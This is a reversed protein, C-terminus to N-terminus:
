ARPHADRYVRHLRERSTHTYIRTTSLSVHGLLEKVALLDAGADLLHTAFSHRLSHVSLGESAAVRELLDRVRRQISRRSLREGKRNLFLADAEADLHTLVDARRLEYRGLARVTTRTLPVIREKRGKGRVRVQGARRDIDEPGLGYLESLRLGSGYLLELMALDRTGELTNQASAESAREFLAAMQGVGLHGPLRRESKPSRVARAPNSPVQDELQLYRFLSRVASLKRALTRRSLGRRAGAALFGRLGRRDVDSWRWDVENRERDLFSVLDGLDRRYAAVTHPSLQREDRLHVLFREVERSPGRADASEM